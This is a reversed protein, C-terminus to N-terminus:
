CFISGRRATSRAAGGLGIISDIGKGTAYRRGAELMDADPNPGFESFEMADVGAAELSAHAHELHGAKVLGADAVLLARSFGLERALAGLRDISGDGTLM